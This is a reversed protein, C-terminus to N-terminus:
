WQKREMVLEDNRVNPANAFLARRFRPSCPELKPERTQQEFGERHLGFDQSQEATGLEKLFADMIAKAQLEIVVPDLTPQPQPKPTKM